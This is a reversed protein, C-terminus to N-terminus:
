FLITFSVSDTEEMSMYGNLSGANCITVISFKNGSFAFSAGMGINKNM